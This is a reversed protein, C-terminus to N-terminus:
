LNGGVRADYFHRHVAGIELSIENTKEYISGWVSYHKTLIDSFLM